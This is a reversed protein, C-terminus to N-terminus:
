RLRTNQHATLAQTPKGTNSTDVGDTVFDGGNVKSTVAPIQVDAGVAGHLHVAENGRVARPLEAEVGVQLHEEIVKGLVLSIGDVVLVQDTLLPM